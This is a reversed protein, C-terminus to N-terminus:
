AHHLKRRRWLIALSSIGVLAMTTPEPIVLGQVILDNGGITRFRDVGGGATATFTYLRFEVVNSGTMSSVAFNADGGGAAGTFNTLGFIDATFGDFSTRLVANSGGTTTRQFRWFINTVSITNGPDAQVIWSLYDNATIANALSVEDFSTGGFTDATGSATVGSGLSLTTSNSTIGTGSTTNTFVPTASANVGTIEWAALV